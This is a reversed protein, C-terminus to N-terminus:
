LVLRRMLLMFSLRMWIRMMFLYMKGIVLLVEALDNVVKIFFTHVSIHQRMNIHVCSPNTTLRCLGHCWSLDDNSYYRTSLISSFSTLTSMISSFSTLSSMFSVLSMSYLNYLSTM